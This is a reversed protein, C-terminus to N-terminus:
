SLRRRHNCGCVFSARSGCRNIGDVADKGPIARLQFPNRDKHGPFFRGGGCAGNVSTAERFRSSWSLFVPQDLTGTPRREGGGNLTLPKSDILKRGYVLTSGASM